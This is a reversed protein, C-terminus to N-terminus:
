LNEARRGTHDLCSRRLRCTCATQTCCMACFACLVWENYWENKHSISNILFGQRDGDLVYLYILLLAGCVFGLWM